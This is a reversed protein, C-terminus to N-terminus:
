KSTYADLFLKAVDRQAGKALEAFVRVTTRTDKRDVYLAFKPGSTFDDPARPTPKFAGLRRELADLSPSAGPAFVIDMAVPTDIHALPYVTASALLKSRPRVVRGGTRDPAPGADDGLFAIVQERTVTGTALAKVLEDLWALDAPDTANMPPDLVGKPMPAASAVVPASATATPAAPRSCAFVFCLSVLARSRIM